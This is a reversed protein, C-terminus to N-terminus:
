QNAFSQIKGPPWFELLHDSATLYTRILKQRNQVLEQRLRRTPKLKLEKKLLYKDYTRLLVEADQIDGMLTQYHHMAALFKENAAPLYNSLTEVMYRFKKFAVRTCHITSTDRPTIRARLQRTREFAREVSQLLLLSATQPECRKRRANVERRSAALWNGLRNTKVRKIARRTRKTFRAQRCLLFEHFASAAPFDQLLHDVALLQVQTDRLDDFTDLHHKLAVEVKKVRAAPLFSSLLEVLSLLRRTEVRSDHVAEESFHKQCRQLKKRYRKWQTKLSRTLHRLTDPPLGWPLNAGDHVGHGNTRTNPLMATVHRM